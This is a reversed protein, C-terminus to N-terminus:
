FCANKPAEGRERIVMENKMEWYEWLIRNMKKVAATASAFITDADM